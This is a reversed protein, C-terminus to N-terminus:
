YPTLNRFGKGKAVFRGMSKLKEEWMGRMDEPKDHVGSKGPYLAYFERAAGETVNSMVVNAGSNLMIDRGGERLTEVATTAPINATPLLLRTISLLRRTVSFSGAKEAGLPTDPNPLFPGMGLMDADIEKFFLLDEALTEASDGPLGILSGTGVEYGLEKLNELCRKRAELSMGQHHRAYLAQNTTEIRLLFRDAGAEKLKKYDEFSREGVSLTVAVDLAKIKSVINFLRDCSFFDDEGGQLVVTEYGYAKAKKALNLIEEDKLRYRTLRKNAARLGCYACSRKCYNTFEILGRLHVGDGVFKKRTLDAAAALDEEVRKCQLLAVIEGKSLEHTIAAKEITSFIEKDTM